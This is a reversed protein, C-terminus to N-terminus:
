IPFNADDLDDEGAGDGAEARRDAEVAADLPFAPTMLGVVAGTPDRVICIRGVDPVDFAPRVVEGGGKVTAASAAAVDAVAIYTFWHAPVGAMGDVAAMDMIGAVPRGHAVAIQYTMGEMPMADFVWGCVDGYYKLAGPVDRTMLESWWIVGHTLSM